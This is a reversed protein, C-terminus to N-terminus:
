DEPEARDSVTRPRRLDGLEVLESAGLTVSPTEDVRPGSGIAYTRFTLNGGDNSDSGYLAHSRSGLRPHSTCRVGGVVFRGPATAGIVSRTLWQVRGQNLGEGVAVWGYCGAGPEAPLPLADEGSFPAVDVRAHEGVPEWGLRRLHTEAEAHTLLADVNMGLREPAGDDLGPFVFPRMQMRGAGEVVLEGRGCLAVIARTPECPSRAGSFSTVYTSPTGQFAVLGCGGALADVEMRLPLDMPESWRETAPSYGRRRLRQELEEADGGTIVAGPLRPGADADCGRWSLGRLAAEVGPVPERETYLLDDDGYDDSESTSWVVLWAAAICAVLFVAWIALPVTVNKKEETDGRAM